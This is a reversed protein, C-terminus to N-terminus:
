AHELQHISTWLKGTFLFYLNSNHDTSYRPVYKLLSVVCASVEPWTLGSDEDTDCVRFSEKEM